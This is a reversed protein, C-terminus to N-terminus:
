SIVVETAIEDDNRESLPVSLEVFFLYPPLSYCLSVSCHSTPPSIACHKKENGHPRPRNVNVFFAVSDTTTLTNMLTFLNQEWHQKKHSQAKHSTAYFLAPLAKV